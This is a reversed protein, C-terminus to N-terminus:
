HFIYFLGVLVVLGLGMTFAYQQVYGSQLRRGQESTKGIAAALGNIFGDIIKVDGVGYLFKALKHVLGDVFIYNYIEDVKYKNLLLNYTGSFKTAMRDPISTNKVYLMYALRIGAAAVAVSFVMLGLELWHSEAGAVHESQPFLPALFDGFLNAHPIIAGPMGILGIVASFFALIMLPVTMVKPSEHVHHEVDHDM